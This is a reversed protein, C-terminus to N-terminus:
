NVGLQPKKDEESLGLRHQYITRAAASLSGRLCAIAKDPRIWKQQETEKSTDYRNRMVSNGILDEIYVEVNNTM